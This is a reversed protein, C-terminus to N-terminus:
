IKLTLLLINDSGNGSALSAYTLENAGGVGINIGFNNLLNNSIKQITIDLYTYLSVSYNVDISTEGKEYIAYIITTLFNELQTQGSGAYMSSHLNQGLKNFNSKYYNFNSSATPYYNSYTLRNTILENSDSLLFYNHTFINLGDLTVGDCWTLDVFYWNPSYEENLGDIDLYIKNWAHRSNKDYKDALGSIVYNKIGEMNCLLSYIKAYGDCVVLGDDFFGELFHFRVDKEYQSGVLNYSYDYWSNALIYEALIYAKDYDTANNPLISNLIAKAREYYNKCNQSARSNSFVPRAGFQLAWYLMDSNEVSLSIANTDSKILSEGRVEQPVFNSWLPNNQGKTYGTSYTIIPSYNNIYSITVNNENYSYSRTLWISALFKYAEESASNIETEISQYAYNLVLNVEIEFIAAYLNVYILEKYSDIYNDYYNDFVYYYENANQNKTYVFLSNSFNVTNYTNNKACVTISVADGTYTSKFNNLKNQYNYSITTGRPSNITEVLTNNLYIDYYDAYNVNDFEIIYSEPATSTIQLSEIEEDNNYTISSQSEEKYAAKAKLVINYSKSETCVTKLDYSTVLLNDEILEGDIYLEYYQAEDVSDWKLVDNVIYITPAQLRGANYDVVITSNSNIFFSSCAEIRFEYLATEKLHNSVDTQTKTNSIEQILEDNLYLNYYDVDDIGDWSIVGNHEKLTLTTLTKNNYTVVVEDSALFIDYGNCVIYLYYSLYKNNECATLLDTHLLEYQVVGNVAKLSDTLTVINESLALDLNEEPTSKSLDLRVSYTNANEVDLWQLLLGNSKEELSVSNVAQLQNYIIYYYSAM